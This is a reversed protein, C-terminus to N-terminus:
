AKNSDLKGTLRIVEKLTPPFLAIPNNECVRAALGASFRVCQEDNWGRWLGYIMGARFADGAGLTGSVRVRYPTFKRLPGGPRAYWLPKKGFTFLTLGKSLSLYQAMLKKPNVGPFARTTYEPSIVNIASYRHCVSDPDCDLTM